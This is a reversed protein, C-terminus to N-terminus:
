INSAVRTRTSPRAATRRRRAPLTSPRRPLRSPASHLKLSESPVPSRRQKRRAERPAAHRMISGRSKAHLLWNAAEKVALVDEQVKAFAFFLVGCGKGNVVDADPDTCVTGRYNWLKPSSPKNWLLKWVENPIAGEFQAKWWKHNRRTLHLETGHRVSSSTAIGLLAIRKTVRTIETVSRAVDMPHVHELVDNSMAIDFSDDGWPIDMLSGMRLCPPERCGTGARGLETAIMLASSSVEMGYANGHTLSHLKPLAACTGCGLLVASTNKNNPLEHLIRELLPMMALENATDNSVHYSGKDLRSYLGVYDFSSTYTLLLPMSMMAACTM